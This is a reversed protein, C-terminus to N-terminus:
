LNLRTQIYKYKKLSNYTNILISYEVQIGRLIQLHLQVVPSTNLSMLLRILIALISFRRM